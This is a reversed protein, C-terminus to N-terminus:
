NKNKEILIETNKMEKPIAIDMYKLITPAVNTLNGNNLKIKRDMIVFPVPSITNKTVINNNRDVITDANGHSGMIIVKYFNEQATEIIKGLCVDIAQLANITAQYSGTHGVEDPNPFNAFIFDYDKDMCEIITKALTLSNMEPKQDYNDVKPSEVTYIDCSKIGEEKAGNLNYFISSMKCSEAIVAQQLGLESIYENLTHEVRETEFMYNQNLEKNIEYLSYVNIKENYINFGSFLNDTLSEFIQLQNNKKFNMFLVTDYKEIIKFDKTKLPPIYEDSLKKRYCLNITKSIDYAEIGDGDFLLKYYVKTRKYDKTYDLAYYRGCISAIKTNEDLFPEIEEIYKNLSYRDCDRGDSIVHIYINNKINSKKIENLMLKLHDIHSSVGGDSLLTIIHLSKKYQRLEKIMQSFKLNNKFTSKKMEEKTKILKNEILRGSGIIKHALESNGCQGDPLGLAKGGSKLLCHPYNNWVNIFNTMGANKVANGYIDERMGFGDLVITLIKKM